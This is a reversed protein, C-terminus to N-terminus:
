ASVSGARGKCGALHATGLVAREEAVVVLLCGLPVLVSVTVVADVIAATLIILGLSRVVPLIAHTICLAASISTLVGIHGGDVSRCSVGIGAAYTVIGYCLTVGQIICNDLGGTGCASVGSMLTLASIFIGVALCLCGSVIPRTEVADASGARGLARMGFFASYLALLRGTVLAAVGSIVMTISASCVIVLLLELCKRMVVAEVGERDRGVGIRVCGLGACLDIELVCACVLIAVVLLKRNGYSYLEVVALLLKRKLNDYNDEGEDNYEPCPSRKLSGCCCSGPPSASSLKLYYM